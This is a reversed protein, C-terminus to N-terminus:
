ECRLKYKGRGTRILSNNALKIDINIAARISPPSAKPMKKYIEQLTLESDKEFLEKIQQINVM